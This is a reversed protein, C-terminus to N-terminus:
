NTVLEVHDENQNPDNVNEKTEITEMGLTEELETSPPEEPSHHLEILTVYMIGGVIAGLTPGVIPAIWWHMDNYVWIERGYGAMATFLRPGFDRAPNIAYGCNYGFSMGIAAVVLGIIFPEMGKPPSSNRKDIIAMICLMLLLTGFFQDGLGSWISLYNQPYTAFIGATANEGVVQRVGGDFANISDHYVGFVCAAALFAGLMQAGVFLPVKLWPFRGITSFAVTVAPNIHAGSVGACCYAGLAVALGWCFNITLFGGKAGRSLVVQAISGDGLVCLVFTGLFEAMFERFYTNRVQFKNALKDRWAM